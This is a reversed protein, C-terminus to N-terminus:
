GSSTIIGKYGHMYANQRAAPMRDFRYQLMQQAMDPQMLLLVPYMWTESDWFVHGNYGLGSLGM